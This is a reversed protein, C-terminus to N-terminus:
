FIISLWLEKLYVAPQKILQECERNWFVFNMNDHNYNVTVEVRYRSVIEQLYMGCGLCNFPIMIAYVNRNCQPYGDYYLGNAFLKGITGYTVCISELGLQILESITRVTARHFFKDGTGMFVTKAKYLHGKTECSTSSSRQCQNQSSMEIDVFEVIVDILDEAVVVGSHVDEFTNFRYIYPSIELLQKNNM